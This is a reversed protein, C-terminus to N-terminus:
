RRGKREGGRGEKGKRVKSGEEKGVRSGEKGKEWGRGKRGKGLM